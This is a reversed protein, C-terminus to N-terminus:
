RVRMIRAGFAQAEIAAESGVPKIVGGGILDDLQFTRWACDAIPM